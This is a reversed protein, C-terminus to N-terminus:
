ANVRRFFSKTERDLAEFFAPGGHGLGELVILTFDPAVGQMRELMPREADHEGAVGLLPAQIARVEAETVRLEEREAIGRCAAALAQADNKADRSIKRRGPRDLRLPGTM